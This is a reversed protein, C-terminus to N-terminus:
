VDEGISKASPGVAIACMHKNCIHVILFMAYGFAQRNSGSM